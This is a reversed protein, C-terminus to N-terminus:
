FECSVVSGRTNHATFNTQDNTFTNNVTIIISKDNNNEMDTLIARKRNQLFSAVEPSVEIQIDAINDKEVAFQIHRMIEISMSEPTKILGSGKCHPCDM